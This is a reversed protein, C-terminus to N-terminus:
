PLFRESRPINRLKRLANAEIQRIRERTVGLKEGVEELTRDKGKFKPAHQLGFRERLINEERPTLTTLMKELHLRQEHQLAEEEPTEQKPDAIREEIKLTGPQHRDNSGGTQDLRLYRGKIGFYIAQAKLSRDDIAETTPKLTSAIKEIARQKTKETIIKRASLQVAEPLYLLGNRKLAADYMAVAVWYSLFTSIKGLKPNYKHFKKIVGEVGDNELDEITTEIGQLSLVHGGNNGQPIKWGEEYLLAYAIKRFYPRANTLIENVIERQRPSRTDIFPTPDLDNNETDRIEAPLGYGLQVEAYYEKALLDLSAWTMLNATKM